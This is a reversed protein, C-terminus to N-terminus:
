PTFSSKNFNDPRSSGGMGIIDMFIVCFEQILMKIIKYFLAGAAAYGHILVLVPLKQNGCILTRVFIPKGQFKGVEINKQM